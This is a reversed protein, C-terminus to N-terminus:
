QEKQNLAIACRQCYLELVDDDDVEVDPPYFAIPAECEACHIMGWGKVLESGNGSVYDAKPTNKKKTNEVKDKKM